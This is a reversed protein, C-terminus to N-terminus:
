HPCQCQLQYTDFIQFSQMANCITLDGSSALSGYLLASSGQSGSPCAPHGLAPDPWAFHGLTIEQFHHAKPPMSFIWLHQIGPIEEDTCVLSWSPYWNGLVRPHRIWLIVCPFTIITDSVGWTCVSVTARWSHHLWPSHWDETLLVGTWLLM